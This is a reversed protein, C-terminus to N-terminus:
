WRIKSGLKRLEHLQRAIDQIYQLGDNDGRFSHLLHELLDHDAELAELRENLGSIEGEIYVLDVDKRQISNKQGIFDSHNNGEHPSCVNSKSAISGDQDTTSDEKKSELRPEESNSSVQQYSESEELNETRNIPMDNDFIQHLKKELRSLCNSIYLREEEFELSSEFAVSENTVQPSEALKSDSDITIPPVSLNQVTANKEKLDFREKQMDYSIHEEDMNSRCFELEAELDQIEKEKEALLDYAKDLEEGDHEAQEDIMRLYQNVEMHLAAKEEQLRNIMSLTQNAAIASANREEELEKCLKGICEKDHEIQRKLRDFISEGEIESVSFGEPFGTLVPEMSTAKQLEQNGNFSSTKTQMEPANGHEM